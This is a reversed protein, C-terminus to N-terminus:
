ILDEELGSIVEKVICEDMIKKEEVYGALLTADCVTNILRPIGNSYAYIEDCAQQTFNPAGNGGAVKLRHNIYGETDERNLATLHCAVAIRQKLQRLSPLSFIERLEPQGVFVIQVLKQKETEINSLMRLEELVSVEINQAEDIVLVVPLNQKLQEKLYNHFKHLLVDKQDKVEADIVSLENLMMRLLQEFTAHPNVIFASKLKNKKNALISRLITTKGSGIEGTLQIIGKRTDLGYTLYAMAKQHSKSFFLFDPDPTLNFPNERLNYFEKYM